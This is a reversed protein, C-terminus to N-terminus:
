DVRFISFKKNCTLATQNLTMGNILLMFLYCVRIYPVWNSECREAGRRTCAHLSMCLADSERCVQSVKDCKIDSQVPHDTLCQFRSTVGERDKAKCRWKASSPQQFINLGVDRFM